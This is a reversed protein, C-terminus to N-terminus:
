RSTATLYSCVMMPTLQATTRDNRVITTNVIMTPRSAFNGLSLSTDNVTEAPTHEAALGLARDRSRQRAPRRARYQAVGVPLAHGM